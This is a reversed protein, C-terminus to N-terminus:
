QSMSVAGDLEGRFPPSTSEATSPVAPLHGEARLRKCLDGPSSVATEDLTMEEWPPEWGIVSQQLPIFAKQPGFSGRLNLPATTPGADTSM